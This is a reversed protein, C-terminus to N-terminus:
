YRGWGQFLTDTGTGRWAQAQISNEEHRLNCDAQGQQDGGPQEDAAKLSQCMDIQSEVRPMHHLNLLQLLVEAVAVVAAIVV